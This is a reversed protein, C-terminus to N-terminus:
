GHGSPKSFGADGALARREEAVAAEVEARLEDRLLETKAEFRL